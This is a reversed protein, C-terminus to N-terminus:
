TYLVITNLVARVKGRLAPLPCIESTLRNLEENSTNQIGYRNFFVNLREINEVIMKVIDIPSMSMLQRELYHDNLFDFKSVLIDEDVFENPNIISYDTMLLSRMKLINIKDEKSLDMVYDTLKITDPINIQICGTPCCDMQDELTKSDCTDCACENMSDKYKERYMDCAKQHEPRLQEYIKDIEIFKCNTVLEDKDLAAVRGNFKGDYIGYYLETYKGRWQDEPKFKDQVWQAPEKSMTVYFDVFEVNKTKARVEEEAERQAAQAPSEGKDAGGGPMTIVEIGGRNRRPILVKNGDFIIIESRFRLPEKTQPIRVVQNYMGNKDYVVYKSQIKAKSKDVPFDYERYNDGYIVREEKLSNINNKDMM